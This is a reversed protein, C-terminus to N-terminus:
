SVALRKIKLITKAENSRRHSGVSRRKRALILYVIIQKEETMQGKYNEGCWECM